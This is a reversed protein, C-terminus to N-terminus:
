PFGPPMQAGAETRKKTEGRVTKQLGKIVVAVDNSRDAFDGRRVQEAEVVCDDDEDETLGSFANVVPNEVELSSASPKAIGWYAPALFFLAFSNPVM